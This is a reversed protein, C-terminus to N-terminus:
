KRAGMPAQRWQLLGLRDDTDGGRQILLDRVLLREICIGTPQFTSDILCMVALMAPWGM